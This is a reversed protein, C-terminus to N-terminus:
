FVRSLSSGPGAGTYEGSVTPFKSLLLGAEFKGLIFRLAVIGAFTRVHGLGMGASGWLFMAEATTLTSLYASEGV